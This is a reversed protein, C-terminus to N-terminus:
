LELVFSNIVNGLSEGNGRLTGRAPPHSSYNEGEGFVDERFEGIRRNELADQKVVRKRCIMEITIKPLYKNTPCLIHRSGLLEVIRGTLPRITGSHLRRIGITAIRM